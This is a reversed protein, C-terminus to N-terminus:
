RSRLYILSLRTVLLRATAWLIQITLHKGASRSKLWLLYASDSDEVLIVFKLRGSSSFMPIKKKRTYQLEPNNYRKSM